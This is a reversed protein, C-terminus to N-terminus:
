SRRLTQWEGIVIPVSSTSDMMITGSRRGGSWDMQWRATATVTYRGQKTYMHGCTPSADFQDREQVYPTGPGTCHIVDGDGMDWDVAVVRGVVSIDWGDLTATNTVTQFIEPNDVWLWNQLGVLGVSSPDVTTPRPVMGISPVALNM